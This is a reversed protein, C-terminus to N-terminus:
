SPRGNAPAVKSVSRSKLKFWHYGIVFQFTNFSPNSHALGANSLHWFRVGVSVARNQRVHIMVGPGLSTTFNFNQTRGPPVNQQTFVAGGNWQVYPEWRGTAAFDWKLGFPSFGGGWVTQPRITVFLPEAEVLYEWRARGDAAHRIVRDIQFGAMTLRVDSSSAGMAVGFAEGAWLGLDWVRERPDNAASSSQALSPLPAIVSIALAVLVYSIVCPRHARLRNSFSRGQSSPCAALRPSDTEGNGKFHSHM